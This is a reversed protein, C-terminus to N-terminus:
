LNLESRTRLCLKCRPESSRQKLRFGQELVFSVARGNGLDEKGKFGFRSPRMFGTEEYVRTEGNVRAVAIGTDIVGYVEVQSAWALSPLFLPLAARMLFNLKKM